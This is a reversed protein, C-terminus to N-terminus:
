SVLPHPVSRVTELLVYKLFWPTHYLDFPRSYSMNSFGLPTTCISRDRTLCIQSVLPHPVSRVTELLVYKLFWPTHYLDFPRSYSMNLFGLPTTYISRDRTLCTQSVLPHSVSRVTKLLVYKLFWPTHYLDFPRSYSMNSFGLPTTCISRDRTLCIQSVLPHPVSRVTELLVYKLFWPTHYLDFPRSYSMNLFGLPTTYISRDQTLCTQSALPHSVSRVTKLLVYKLFWPTHYLDFPRSYSMNSFGLPTTCISRDRTLCIQSVLPHPVSRVTELLVYKLFWPTHYLDFPRSYSMNSFGLPTTCISRDRTLCIWSALPTHYLDFPRSYSM